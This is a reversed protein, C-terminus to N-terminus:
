GALTDSPTEDAAPPQIAGPAPEVAAQAPQTSAGPWQGRLSRWIVMVLAGLGFLMVVFGVLGGLIPIAAVVRLIALGLLMALLDSPQSSMRDGLWRGIGLVGAITGAAVLAGWLCALLLVIWWGGIFAGLILFPLGLAPPIFFVAAGLGLSPWPKELLVRASRGFPVPLVLLLLLGFLVWGVTSQIWGIVAWVFSPGATRQAQARAPLHQVTNGAVTGEVAPKVNSWYEFDGGVKAGSAITVNDSATQLDGDVSGAVSVTGGSMYANRGVSGALSLTGGALAADRAVNAQSGLRVTAGSALVDGKVDGEIAVDAGAARVSGDVSGSVRVVQGAAFVDGTVTGSIVVTQGAAIVDGDVAGDIEITAGFAYLDDHVSESSGVTVSQGQRLTLAHAAGPMALVAAFVCLVTLTRVRTGSM